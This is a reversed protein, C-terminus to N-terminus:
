FRFLDLWHIQMNSKEFLRDHSLIVIMNQENTMGDDFKQNLKKILEDVSEKPEKKKGNQGWELDWGVIKYGDADLKKV